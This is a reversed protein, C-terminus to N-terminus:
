RNPPKVEQCEMEDLLLFIACSKPVGPVGSVGGGPPDYVGSSSGFFRELVAKITAIMTIM